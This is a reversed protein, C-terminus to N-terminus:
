VDLIRIKPGNSRMASQELVRQVIVNISDNSGVRALQNFNLLGDPELNNDANMFILITWKGNAFQKRTQRVVSVRLCIRSMGLDIILVCFAKCCDYNAGM